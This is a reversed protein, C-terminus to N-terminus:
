GTSVMITRSILDAREARPGVLIEIAGAELLPLGHEDPFSLDDCTLEFLVTGSAGAALTIKAVGKLELVPRSVSAVPDRIFLFATEEGEVPGENIIYAEIRLREGPALTDASVRVARYFFQTYSAGHGFPFLPGVPADMYRSTYANDPDADAPRGTARQAYFLPMQGVHHPWSVPLKGSPNSRGMLIDALASGAESGLFWTALVADAKEFLWPAILPRGSSLAVIAPKGLEFIAEALHRQCQPIGPDVRSSAEGCMGAAEGLCLLVVDARRAAEIAAGPGGDLAESIGTGAEHEIRWSPLADRLGALFTVTQDAKGAAYWPGLMEQPHAAFPGIIALRKPEAKLPLLDGRNQLLVISRRAADRALERNAEINPPAEGGAAQFPEDLLGLRGKLTLVRRVAEDILAETVLGRELAVPLGKPYADSVMDIDIGAKLALAAAEALDAAVGHAILEAVAGFDSIMVGDFGWRERVLGRLIEANGTMPVGALDNFAPMIAVVGARIAALFPPLHVEHLSRASIDVSNYERGSMVAGYAGLHKATAALWGRGSAAQQFGEVKAEAFRAGLWPDEGFSEAMRGWRADRSVDLMPAYTLSLDAVLAEGAAADATAEWLAPDFSAAEGIPIPFITQYGHLVDLTALLPIGFRTEKVAVDQARRIGAAAWIDLVSGVRGARVDDLQGPSLEPGGAGAGGRVMTLQGIKEELRMEDLLRDIRPQFAKDSIL